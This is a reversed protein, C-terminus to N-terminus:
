FAHNRRFDGKGAIYGDPAAVFHEADPMIGSGSDTYHEDESRSGDSLYHSDAVTLTKCIKTDTQELEAKSSDVSAASFVGCATGAIALASVTMLFLTFGLARTLSNRM